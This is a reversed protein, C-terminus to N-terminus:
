TLLYRISDHVSVLSLTGAIHVLTQILFNVFLLFGHRSRAAQRFAKRYLWYLWGGEALSVSLAMGLLVGAQEPNAGGIVGCALGLVVLVLYTGSCFLYIVAAEKRVRLSDAEDLDAILRRAVARLLWVQVFILPFFLVAGTLTLLKFTAPNLTFLM